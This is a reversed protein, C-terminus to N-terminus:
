KKILINADALLLAVAVALEIKERPNARRNGVTLCTFFM